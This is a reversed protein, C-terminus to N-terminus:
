TCIICFDRKVFNRLIVQLNRQFFCLRVLEFLAFLLNCAHTVGGYYLSLNVELSSYFDVRSYQHAVYSM